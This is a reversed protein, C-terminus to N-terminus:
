LNRYDVGKYSKRNNKRLQICSSLFNVERHRQSSSISLDNVRLMSDSTMPMIVVTFIVKLVIPILIRMWIILRNIMQERMMVSMSKSKTTEDL